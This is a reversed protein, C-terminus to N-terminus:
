LAFGINGANSVITVGLWQTGNWYRMTGAGIPGEIWIDGVAIATPVTDQTFVHAAGGTKSQGTLAEVAQKLARVTETLSTIDPNPDPIAPYVQGTTNTAM